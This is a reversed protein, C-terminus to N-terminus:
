SVRADLDNLISLANSATNQIGLNRLTNQVGLNHLTDHGGDFTAGQSTKAPSNGQTPKTIQPKAKISSPPDTAKVPTSPNTWKWRWSSIPSPTRPTAPSPQDVGPSISGRNENEHDNEENRDSYPENMHFDQLSEALTQSPAFAPPSPREPNEPEDIDDNNVTASTEVDAGEPLFDNIHMHGEEFSAGQPSSHPRRSGSEPITLNPAPTGRNIAKFTLVNMDIGDSRLSSRSGDGGQNLIRRGSSPTEFGGMHAELDESSERAMNVAVTLPASGDRPATIAPTMSRQRTEESCDQQDSSKGQETLLKLRDSFKKANAHGTLASYGTSSPDIRRIDKASVWGFDAGAGTFEGKLPIQAITDLFMVPFKRDAVRPGDDDYDPKWGFIEMNRRDWMYCSPISNGLTTNRISNSIGIEDFDGTPLIVATNFPGLQVKVIEGVQPDTVFDLSKKKLKRRSHQPKSGKINTKKKRQARITQSFDSHEDSDLTEIRFDHRKRKRLQRPTEIHLEEPQRHTPGHLCEPAHSPSLVARSPPSVRSVIPKKRPSPDSKATPSVPNPEWISSHESESDIVIVEDGFRAWSFPNPPEGNERKRDVGKPTKEDHREKPAAPVKIYVILKERRLRKEREVFEGHEDEISQLEEKANQLENQLRQINDRLTAQRTAFEAEEARLKEDYESQISNVIAITADIQDVEQSDEPRPSAM